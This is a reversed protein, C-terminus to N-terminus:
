DEDEEEDDEDFGGLWDRRMERRSQAVDENVTIEHDALAPDLTVGLTKLSGDRFLALEV